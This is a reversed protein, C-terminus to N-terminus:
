VICKGQNWRRSIESDRDCSAHTHTSLRCCTNLASTRIVRLTYFDRVTKQESLKWHFQNELQIPFEYTNTFLHCETETAERITTVTQICLQASLLQRSSRQKGM